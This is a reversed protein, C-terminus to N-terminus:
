FQKSSHTVTKYECNTEYKTRLFANHEHPTVPFM